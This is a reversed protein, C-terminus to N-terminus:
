TPTETDYPRISRWSRRRRSGCRPHTIRATNVIQDPCRLCSFPPGDLLTLLPPSIDVDHGIFLTQPYRAELKPRSSLNTPKHFCPPHITQLLTLNRYRCRQVPQITRNLKPTPPRSFYFSTISYSFYRVETRRGLCQLTRPGSRLALIRRRVLAVQEVRFIGIHEFLDTSIHCPTLIRLSRCLYKLKPMEHITPKNSPWSLWSRTRKGRKTFGDGNSHSALCPAFPGREDDSSLWRMDVTIM